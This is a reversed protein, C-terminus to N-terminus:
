FKFKHNMLKDVLFQRAKSVGGAVDNKFIKVDHGEIRLRQVIYNIFYFNTLPVSSGDDLVFIDFLNYTQHRLSELLLGVETARDKSAIM